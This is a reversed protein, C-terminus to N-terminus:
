LAKNTKGKGKPEAKVETQKPEPEPTFPPNSAAQTLTDILSKMQKIKEASFKNEQAAIVRKLTNVIGGFEEDSIGLKAEGSRDNGKDSREGTKGEDEVKHKQTAIKVLSSMTPSVSAGTNVTRKGFEVPKSGLEGAIAAPANTIQAVPAKGEEQTIVMDDAKTGADLLACAAKYANSLNINLRKRNSLRREYEEKDKEKDVGGYNYQKELDPDSWKYVVSDSEEDAIRAMVGMRVLVRTNLKETAKGGEWIAFLNVKEDEEQLKLVAKTLEFSMFTRSNEAAASLATLEEDFASQAILASLYNNGFGAVGTEELSKLAPLSNSTITAVNTDTSM